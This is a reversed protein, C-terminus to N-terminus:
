EVDNELGAIWQAVYANIQVLVARVDERQKGNLMQTLTIEVFEVINGITLEARIADMITEADDAQVGDAIARVIKDYMNM